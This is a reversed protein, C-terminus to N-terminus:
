PAPSSGSLTHFHSSKGGKKQEVQRDTQPNCVLKVSSEALGTGSFLPNIRSCKQPSCYAPVIINNEGYRAM